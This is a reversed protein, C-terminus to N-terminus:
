SLVNEYEPNIKESTAPQSTIIAVTLNPPEQWLPPTRDHTYDKQTIKDRISKNSTSRPVPM